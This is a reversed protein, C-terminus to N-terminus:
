EPAQPDVIRRTLQLPGGGAGTLEQRTTERYDAPFRAGMSRAWLSSQFRDACLNDQGVDEWWGLALDRARTLADLFEPHVAAWDELTQRAVDLSAAIQAKSKGKRGLAIVEACISEALEPTYLSPRGM